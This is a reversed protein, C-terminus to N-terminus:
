LTTHTHVNNLLAHITYQSHQITKTYFVLKSHTATSTEDGDAVKLFLIIPLILGRNTQKEKHVVMSGTHLHTLLCM